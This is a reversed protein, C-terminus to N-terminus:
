AARKEGREGPLPFNVVAFKGYFKRAADDYARAAALEGENTFPFSGLFHLEDRYRIHAGWQGGTSYQRNTRTVGRYRSLATAAKRRKHAVASFDSRDLNARRCDLENGNKFNTLEGDRAVGLIEEHLSVSRGSGGDERVHHSAYASGRGNLLNTDLASFAQTKIINTDGVDVLAVFGKTLRCWAHDGCECIGGYREEALQRRREDMRRVRDAPWYKSVTTM